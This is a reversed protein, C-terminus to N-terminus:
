DGKSVSAGVSGAFGQAALTLARYQGINASKPWNQGIRPMASKPQGSTDSLM